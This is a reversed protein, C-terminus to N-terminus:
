PAPFDDRSGDPDPLLQLSERPPLEVQEKELLAALARPAIAQLDPLALPGTGTALLRATEADITRLGGLWLGGRHKALAAATAPPLATLRECVLVGEHPALAAAV